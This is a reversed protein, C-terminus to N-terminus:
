LKTLPPRNKYIGMNDGWSIFYETQSDHKQKGEQALLVAIEQM